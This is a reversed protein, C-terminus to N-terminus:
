AEEGYSPPFGLERMKAYAIRQQDLTEAGWYDALAKQKLPIAELIRKADLPQGRRGNWVPNLSRRLRFTSTM